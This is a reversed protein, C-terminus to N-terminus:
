EEKKEKAFCITKHYYGTDVEYLDNSSKSPQFVFGNEKLKEKVSKVINTYDGKTYIDFDYYMVYYLIEDDGSLVNDIDVNQYTIYDTSKGNYELFEVPIEVNDVVFDQFILEIESNM